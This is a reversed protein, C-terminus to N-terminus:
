VGARLSFHAPQPEPGSAGSLKYYQGQFEAVAMSNGNSVGLPLRATATPLKYRAALVAPTVYRACAIADCGMPWAVAPAGLPEPAVAALPEAAATPAATQVLPETPASVPGDTVPSAERVRPFQLLEGVLLVHPSVSEDLAYGIGSRLIRPASSVRSHRFWHLQTSLLAEAAGVPMSVTLVDRNPAVVVEAGAAGFHAAVTSVRDPCVNLLRTVQATRRPLPPSFM